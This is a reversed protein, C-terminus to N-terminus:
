RAGGIPDTPHSPRRAEIFALYAEFEEQSMAAFEKPSPWTRKRWLNRWARRPEFWVDIGFRVVRFRILHRVLFRKLFSM